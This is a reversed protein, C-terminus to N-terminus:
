SRSFGRAVTIVDGLKFPYLRGLERAERPPVGQAVLERRFRGMASRRRLYYSILMGPLRFILKLIFFTTSIAVRINM